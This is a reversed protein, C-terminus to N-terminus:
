ATIAYVLWQVHVVVGLWGLFLAVAWRRFGFGALGLWVAAAALALAPLAVSLPDFGDPGMPDRCWPLAGFAVAPYALGAAVLWGERGHGGRAPEPLEGTEDPWGPSADPPSSRRPWLVAAAGAVVFALASLTCAEVQSKLRYLEGCVKTYGPPVPHAADIWDYWRALLLDPYPWPRPWGPDGLLVTGSLRHQCWALYAGAALGWMVVLAGLIQRCM